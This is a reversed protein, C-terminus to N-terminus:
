LPIVWTPNMYFQGSKCMHCMTWPLSVHLHKKMRFRTWQHAQQLINNYSLSVHNKPGANGIKAYEMKGVSKDDAYM